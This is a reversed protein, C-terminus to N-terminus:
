HGPPAGGPSSTMEPITNPSAPNAGPTSQQSPNPPQSQNPSEQGPQNAPQERSPAQQQNAGESRPQMNTVGAGGDAFPATSTQGRDCAGLALAALVAAAVHTPMM